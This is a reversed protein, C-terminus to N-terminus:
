ANLRRRQLGRAVIKSCMAELWSRKKPLKKFGNIWGSFDEDKPFLAIMADPYLVKTIQPPDGRFSKLYSKRLTLGHERLDMYLLNSFFIGEDATSAVGRLHDRYRTDVFGPKYEVGLFLAAFEAEGGGDLLPRLEEALSNRAGIAANLSDASRVLVNALMLPRGTCNLREFIIEELVRVALHSFSLARMDALLPLREDAEIEGLERAKLFESYAELQREFADLVPKINQEKLSLLTQTIGVAVAIAANTARIESLIEQREKQREAIVFAGYAGAFSGAIATFANSSLLSIWIDWDVEYGGLLHGLSAGDM